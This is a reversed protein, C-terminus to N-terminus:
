KRQYSKLPININLWIKNISSLFSNRRHPTLCSDTTKSRLRSSVAGPAGRGFWIKLKKKLSSMHPKHVIATRRMKTQTRSWRLTWLPPRRLNCTMLYFYMKNLFRLESRSKESFRGPFRTKYFFDWDNWIKPTHLVPDTGSKTRFCNMCKVENFSNMQKTLLM